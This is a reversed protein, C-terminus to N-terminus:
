RLKSKYYVLLMTTYSSESANEVLATALRGYLNVM